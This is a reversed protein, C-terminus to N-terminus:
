KKQNYEKQQARYEEKFSAGNKTKRGRRCFGISEVIRFELLVVSTKLCGVTLFYNYIEETPVNGSFRLLHKYIKVM